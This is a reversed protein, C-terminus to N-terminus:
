DFPNCVSHHQHHIKMEDVNEYISFNEYSFYLINTESLSLRCTDLLHQRISSALFKRFHTSNHLNTMWRTRLAANRDCFPGIESVIWKSQNLAMCHCVVTNNIHINKHQNFHLWDIQPFFNFIKRWVQRTKNM